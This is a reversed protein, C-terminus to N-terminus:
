GVITDGEWDGIRRREEVIKPRKDIRKKKMAEREKERIRTSYRRRYKGKQCRLYRVLNKRENYIYKYLTQQNEGIKKGRAFQRILGSPLDFGESQGTLYTV